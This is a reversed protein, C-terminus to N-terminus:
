AVVRAPLTTIEVFRDGVWLDIPASVFGDLLYEVTGDALRRAKFTLRGHHTPLNEISVGADLWSSTLGRGVILTGRNEFVFLNRVSRLFDSGVWGHPADGIFKPTKPDAYIVEGWHNWGLPRRHQMFYELVEHARDIQGLRVFSGVTRWEYPTYCDDGVFAGPEDRRKRFNRMYLDFTRQMPGPLLYLIDAPDLGITTSTPDVDGLDNAGPIVDLGHLAMSMSISRVLAMRFSTVIEALREAEQHEGLAVACYHADQLGKLAFLNDWNSYAPHASYGEHSISPPLIGRLHAKPGGDAFEPTETERRLYQIYDVAKLVRWFLSRLFDIDRTFRYYEAVLYIFEGHSDHEPVPDSGRKDACCPVKGSEYQYPAFWQIFDRVEQDFGQQLLAASTLSGDRIWTRRYCRSGPQIADGDRNILIYAVQSKIARVLDPAAPIDFGVADLRTRWDMTVAALARDLPAVESANSYPVAVDFVATEGAGLAYQYMLAGSGFGRADSIGDAEPLLGYNLHHVVDDSAISTAGFGGLPSLSEIKLSENVQVVKGNLSMSKVPTFGGPTNLFQWPPNVQFQRIALFLKGASPKDGLNRVTYRAYLTASEPDGRGFTKVELALKEEAHTRKVCAIPLYGDVLSQEHSGDRWTLLRCNAGSAKGKEGGFIFPEISVTQRGVELMGEENIIAEQRGGSVGVVTWYSQEGSFYRPFYGRPYMASIRKFLANRDAAWDLGKFEISRIEFAPEGSNVSTSSGRMVLRVADIDRDAFLLFQRGSQAGIITDTNKWTKSGTYLVDVQYRQAWANGWDVVMASLETPRAFRFIMSERDRGSAQRSASAWLTDPDQDLVRGARARNSSAWVQCDDGPESKGEPNGPREVFDLDAFWVSCKKREGGNANTVTLDIYAVEDPPTKRPGWAYTFQRKKNVLRQYRNSFAFNARNVWWVNDCSQDLLKFELTNVPCNGKVSFSFVYDDPLKIAVPIRILAYGSGAFEFDLRLARGDARADAFLEATVGDTTVVKCNQPELKIKM